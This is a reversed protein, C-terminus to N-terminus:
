KPHKLKAAKRCRVRLEVVEETSADLRHKTKLYSPKLNTFLLDYLLQGKLTRGYAVEPRM